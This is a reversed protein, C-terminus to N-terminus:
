YFKYIKEINESDYFGLTDTSFSKELDVMFHDDSKFSEYIIKKTNINPQLGTEADVMVLNINKPVKFPLAEKKKTPITKESSRQNTSPNKQYGTRKGLVNRLRYILFVAIAAFIIIDFFQLDGYVM